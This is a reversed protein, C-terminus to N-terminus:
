DLRWDGSGNSHPECNARQFPSTALLCEPSLAQGTENPGPGWSRSGLRRRTRCPAAKDPFAWNEFSGPNGPLRTAGGWRFDTRGGGGGRGRAEGPCCLLHGAWPQRSSTASPVLSLSGAGCAGSWDGEQARWTPGSSDKSTVGKKGGRPM